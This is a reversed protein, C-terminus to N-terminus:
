RPAPSVVLDAGLDNLGAAADWAGENALRIAYEPRARLAPAPDPLGLLLRYAGPALDRPLTAAIDVTRDGGPQWARADVGTALAVRAGTAAHRLVLEVPRPNYPAAWGENRLTLRVRLAAGPEAAEPLEASSLVFRYGLRRRVEGMCGEAEWRALVDPHYDANIVSWRMRELDRLANACGTYPRAEEDANCTEGGQPVYRNDLALYAKEAEIVAPDTSSYTGWDDASALFCDNHAGVRARDTGGFAEAATLPASTGFIARKHGAYRLAAMRDRPLVQLLKLLVARRNADTDNGSTSSHWEGWTGIFGAEVFAIVDANARLAPRLQDLHALIRARPADPAGVPGFNYAFRPIVKVGARRATALDRRVRALVSAAIPRNRYAGLVYYVRAVSMGRARADALEGAGLYSTWGRSPDYARQVYFGREPNPFDAATPAYTVTGAGAPAAAPGLLLLAAGLLLGRRLRGHRM